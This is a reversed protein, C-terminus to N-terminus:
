SITLILWYSIWSFDVNRDGDASLESAGLSCFTVHMKSAGILVSDTDRHLHSGQHGPTPQFPLLINCLEPFSPDCPQVQSLLTRAHLQRLPFLRLSLISVHRASSSSTYEWWEWCHSTEDKPWKSIAFFVKPEIACTFGHNHPDFNFKSFRLRWKPM